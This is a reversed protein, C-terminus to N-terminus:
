GMVLKKQCESPSNNSPQGCGHLSNLGRLVAELWGQYKSDVDAYVGLPLPFIDEGVTSFTKSHREWAYSQFTRSFMLGMDSLHSGATQIVQQLPGAPQHFDHLAKRSPGEELGGSNGPEEAKVPHVQVNDLNGPAWPESRQWEHNPEEGSIGLATCRTQPLLPAPARVEEDEMRVEELDGQTVRGVDRQAERRRCGEERRKQWRRQQEKGQWIGEQREAAMGRDEWLQLEPGWIAPSCRVEGERDRPGEQGSGSTGGDLVHSNARQGSRGVGSGSHLPEWQGGDRPKEVKPSWPRLDSLGTQGTLLSDLMRSIAHAERQMAPSMKNMLQQRYYRTFLAPVPGQSLDWAGGEMTILTEAAEEVAAAALAGPLRKSITMLHGSPGFLTSDGGSEEETDKSGSSSSSGSHRSKKKKAIKSARRRIRRRVSPDPDVGTKGLVQSLDKQKEVKLKEKAKKKKKKKKKGKKSGEESSSDKVDEPEKGQGELHGAVREKRRRMQEERLGRLEDRPEEAEEGLLNTMRGERVAKLEKFSQVHILDERHPTGPCSDKCLHLTMKRGPIGTATNLLNENETGQLKGHLYVEGEKAKMEEVRFAGQVEEDWYTAEIFHLDKLQQVRELTVESARELAEEGDKGPALASGRRIAPRKLVGFRVRAHGAKAKAMAKGKARPAAKVKAKAKAKPAGKAKPAVAAAPRVRKPAM